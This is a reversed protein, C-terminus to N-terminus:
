SIRAGYCVRSLLDRGHVDTGFWHQADPAQFQSESLGVPSWTMAAPLHPAIGPKALLPWLVVIAVVVVLGTGSGVARRNDLFRRCARQNHSLHEVPSAPGDYTTMESM